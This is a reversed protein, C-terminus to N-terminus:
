KRRRSRSRHSADRRGRTRRPFRRLFHDALNEVGVSTYLGRYFGGFMPIVPPEEKQIPVINTSTSRDELVVNQAMAALIPSGGM